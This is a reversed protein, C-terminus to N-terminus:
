VGDRFNSAVQLFRRRLEADSIFGYNIPVIKQNKPDVLILAPFYRIGLKKAQGYDVQSVKGNQGTAFIELIKGDMSIPVLSIRNERSFSEVIPALAQDLPNDGRYFFFMGYTKGFDRIAEDEKRRTEAYIIHQASNQTPHLISYDLEPYELLTRKWIQTFFAAKDVVFNQLILYSRMNEETPYLIARDKAERVAQRLANMQIVASIEKKNKKDMGKEPYIENYWHWGIAKKTEETEQPKQELGIMQAMSLEPTFFGGFLLCLLFLFSLFSWHKFRRKYSNYFFSSKPENAM